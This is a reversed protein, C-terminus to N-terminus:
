LTTVTFKNKFKLTANEKHEGKYVDLILNEVSVIDSFKIDKDILYEFDKRNNKKFRVLQSRFDIAVFTKRYKGKIAKIKTKSEKYLDGDTIYKEQRLSNSIYCRIGDRVFAIFTQGAKLM